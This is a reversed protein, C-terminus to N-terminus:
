SQKPQHFSYVQSASSSDILREPEWTIKVSMNAAEKTLIMILIVYIEVLNQRFGLFLGLDPCCLKRLGHNVAWADQESGAWCCVTTTQCRANVVGPLSADEYVQESLMGATSRRDLRSCMVPFSCPFVWSKQFSDLVGWGAPFGSKPIWSWSMKGNAYISNDQPVKTGKEKLSGVHQGYGRNQTM